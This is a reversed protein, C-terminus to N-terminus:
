ERKDIKLRNHPPEEDLLSVVDYKTKGEWPVQPQHFLEWAVVAFSFIDCAKTSTADQEFLEPAM